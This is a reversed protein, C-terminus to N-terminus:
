ERKEFADLKEDSTEQEVYLMRDAGDRYVAQVNTEGDKILLGDGPLLGVEPDDLSQTEATPNYYVHFGDGLDFHEVGNALTKSPTKKGRIQLIKSHM